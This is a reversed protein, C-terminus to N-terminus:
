DACCYLIRKRFREFNRFGYAKRKLVKIKNNLGETLSNTYPVDFSALIESFWNRFVQVCRQFEKLNSSEAMGIWKKLKEKVENSTKSELIKNFEEKLRHAIRLEPAYLFMLELEERQEGKLEKHKKLILKRSRKFYKRLSRSLNKQVRKRVNEVAWYVYRVFHFKDIVVKARKFYIKAIEAFQKWMDCVFYKVKDRNKFRKFYEILVEQRRDKLIDIIKGNLPNVIICQYKAGGAHGKFEDICIVEPLEDKEEVPSFKDFLRMVTSVSVNALKAVDTMSITNELQKVIWAALRNTMRQYRPLFDVQEYFRKKCAKCVYRRKKLVIYTKKGLMPIEKIRQVRYDHVKSTEAKCNPCVHIKQKLKIHLEVETANEVINEVIVEESKLLQTIYNINLVLESYRREKTNKRRKRKKLM